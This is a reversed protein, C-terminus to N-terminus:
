TSTPGMDKEMDKCLEDFVYQIPTGESMCSRALLEYWYQDFSLSLGHCARLTQYREWMKARIKEV